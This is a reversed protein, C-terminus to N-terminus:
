PLERRLKKKVALSPHSTVKRVRKVAIGMERKPPVHAQTDVAAEDGIKETMRKRLAQAMMRCLLRIGIEVEPRRPKTPM